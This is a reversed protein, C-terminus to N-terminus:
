GNGDTTQVSLGPEFGPSNYLGHSRADVKIKWKGYGCWIRKRRREV